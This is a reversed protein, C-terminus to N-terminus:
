RRLTRADHPGPLGPGVTPGGGPGPPAPPPPPCGHNGCGHALIITPDALGSGGLLDASQPHGILGLPIVTMASASGAVLALLGATSLTLVSMRIVSM